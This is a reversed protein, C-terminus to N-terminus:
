VWQQSWSLINTSQFRGLVLLKQKRYWCWLEEASQALSINLSEFPNALRRTPVRLLIKQNPNRITQSMMVSITRPGNQSMNGPGPGL